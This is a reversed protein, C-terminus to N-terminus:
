APTLATVSIAKFKYLHLAAEGDRYTEEPGMPIASTFTCNLTSGTHDIAQVAFYPITSCVGTESIYSVNGSGNHYFAHYCESKAELQGEIWKHGQFWAVPNVSNMVSQPVIGGDEPMRKWSISMLNTITECNNSAAGLKVSINGVCNIINGM